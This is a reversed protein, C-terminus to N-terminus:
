CLGAGIKVGCPISSGNKSKRQRFEGEDGNSDMSCAESLM